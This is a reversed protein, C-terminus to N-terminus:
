ITPRVGIEVYNIGSFDNNYIFRVNEVECAKSKCKEKLFESDLKDGIRPIFKLKIEVDEVGQTYFILKVDYKM